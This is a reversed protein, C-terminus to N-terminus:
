FWAVDNAAATLVAEMNVQLKQLQKEIEHISGGDDCNVAKDVCEELYLLQSKFHEMKALFASLVVGASQFSAVM